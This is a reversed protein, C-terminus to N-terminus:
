LIHFSQIKRWTCDVFPIETSNGRRVTYSLSAIGMEPM